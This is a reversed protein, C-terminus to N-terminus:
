RKAQESEYFWRVTEQFDRIANRLEGLNIGHKRLAIKYESDFSFLTDCNNSLQAGLYKLNLPM